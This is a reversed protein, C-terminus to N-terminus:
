VHDIFIVKGKQFLISGVMFTSISIGITALLTNLDPWNGFSIVQQFCLVFYSIPNLYIIYRLASPVMEPTYAFPSLVMLLMLIIGMIERVDKMVLSLLSLVFGLGIAFMLILIWLIPVLIIAGWFTNGLIISLLLTIVLGFFPPIQAALAAKLPILDLPFATNLLVNKNSSISNMSAIIAENFALIPVLGSFILLTYDFETLGSVRIKFIVTYLMAYVSLQMLPFLIAWLWGFLNGRYRQRVDTLVGSILRERQIFIDKFIHISNM